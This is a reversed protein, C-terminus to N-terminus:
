QGITRRLMRGLKQADTYTFPEGDILKDFTARAEKDIDGWIKAHQDRLAHTVPYTGSGWGMPQLPIHELLEENFEHVTQQVVVPRGENDSGVQTPIQKSLITAHGFIDGIHEDIMDRLLHPKELVAVFPHSHNQKRESRSRRLLSEAVWSDIYEPQIAPIDLKKITDELEPLISAHVKKIAEDLYQEGEEAMVRQLEKGLKVREGSEIDLAIRWSLDERGSSTTPYDRGRTSLMGLAEELLPRRRDQKGEEDDVLFRSDDGHELDHTLSHRAEEQRAEEQEETPALVGPMRVNYIVSGKRVPFREPNELFDWLEYDKLSPPLVESTVVKEGDEYNETTKVVFRRVYHYGTGQWDREKVTRDQVIEQTVTKVGINKKRSDSGETTRRGPVELQWTLGTWNTIDHRELQETIDEFIPKGGRTLGIDLDKGKKQLPASEQATRAHWNWTARPARDGGGSSTLASGAAELFEKLSQKRTTILEGADDYINVTVFRRDVPRNREMKRTVEWSTGRKTLRPMGVQHSDSEVKLRSWAHRGQFEPLVRTPKGERARKENDPRKFVSGVMRPRSFRKITEVPKYVPEIFSDVVEYRRGGGEDNKITLELGQMDKNGRLTADAMLRQNLLKEREEPETSVDFDLTVTPDLDGNGAEPGGAVAPM